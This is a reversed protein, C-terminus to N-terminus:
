RVKNATNTALKLCMLTSDSTRLQNVYELTSSVLGMEKIGVGLGVAMAHPKASWKQRGQAKEAAMKASKISTAADPDWSRLQSASQPPHHPPRPPPRPPRHLPRHLPRQPRAPRPIPCSTAIRTRYVCAEMPTCSAGNSSSAGVGRHAASRMASPKASLLPIRSVREVIATRACVISTGAVTTALSSFADQELVKEQLVLAQVLAKDPKRKRQSQLANELDLDLAQVLAKDPKRKRQNQLANELDLDRDKNNV